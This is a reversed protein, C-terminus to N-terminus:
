VLARSETPSFVSTGIISEAPWPVPVEIRSKAYGSSLVAVECSLPSCASSRTWDSGSGEVAGDDRLDAARDSELREETEDVSDLRARLARASVSLSSLLRTSSFLPFLVALTPMDLLEGDKNRLKMLAMDGEPLLAEASCSVLFSVLLGVLRSLRAVWSLPESDLKSPALSPPLNILDDLLRERVYVTGADDDFLCCFCRCVSSSVAGIASSESIPIKGSGDSDSDPSIEVVDDKFSPVVSPPSSDCLLGADVDTSGASLSDRLGGTQVYM